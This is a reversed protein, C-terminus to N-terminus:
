WAACLCCMVSCLQVVLAVVVGGCVISAYAQGSVVVTAQLGSSAGAFGYSQSCKALECISTVTVVASSAGGQSFSQVASVNASAARLSLQRADTFLSRSALSVYVIFSAASGAYASYAKLDSTRRIPFLSLPEPGTVNLTACIQQSRDDVTTALLLPVLKAGMVTGLDAVPYEDLCVPVTPDTGLCVTLTGETLGQLMIGGGVVQGVLEGNANNVARYDSCSAPGAATVTKLFEFKSVVSVQVTEAQALPATANNQYQLVVSGVPSQWLLRKGFLAKSSAVASSSIAASRLPCDIAGVKGTANLGCALTKFVELVPQTTCIANSSFAQLFIASAAKEISMKLKDQVASPSLFSQQTLSLATWNLSTGQSWTGASWSYIQKWQYLGANCDLRCQDGSIVTLQGSSLFCAQGALCEERSQAQMKMQGGLSTCVDNTVNVLCADSEVPVAAGGLSDSCSSPMMNLATWPVRCVLSGGRWYAYDNCFGSGECAVRSTCQASLNWYCALPSDGGGCTDRSNSGCSVLEYGSPCAVQVTLQVALKFCGAEYWDGGDTMCDAESSIASAKCLQYWSGKRSECRPCTADCLGLSDV